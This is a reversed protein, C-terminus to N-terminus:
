PIDFGQTVLVTFDKGADVKVTFNRDRGLYTIPKTAGELGKEIAPQLLVATGLDQGNGHNAAYYLAGATLGGNVIGAAIQPGWHHNVDGGLGPLGDKIVSSIALELPKNLPNQPPMIIKEISASAREEQLKYSILVIAGRLSPPDTLTGKIISPYDTNLAENTYGRLETGAAIHKPSSVGYEGGGDTLRTYQSDLVATPNTAVAPRNGDSPRDIIQRSDLFAVAEGYTKSLHLRLEKPPRYDEPITPGSRGGNGGKSGGNGHGSRVNGTGADDAHDEYSQAPNAEPTLAHSQPAPASAAGVEAFSPLPSERSPPPNTQSALPFLGANAGNEVKTPDNENRRFDQADKIIKDTKSVKASTLIAKPAKERLVFWMFLGCAVLAGIAVYVLQKKKAPDLGADAEPLGKNRMSTLFTDENKSNLNNSKEM